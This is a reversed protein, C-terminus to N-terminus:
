QNGVVFLFTINAANIPLKENTGKVKLFVREIGRIHSLIAGAQQKTKGAIQRRLNQLDQQSFQYIMTGQLIVTMVLTGQQIRVKM